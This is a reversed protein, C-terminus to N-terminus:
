NKILRIVKNNNESKINLYYIGISANSIDISKESVDLSSEYIIRGSGDTIVIVGDILSPNKLTFIGNSPNPAISFLVEDKEDLSIIGVEVCNGIGFCTMTANLIVYTYFGNATPTFTTGMVGAIPQQTACDVWLGMGASGGTAILTGNSETVVAAEPTTDEGIGYWECLDEDFVAEEYCALDTPVEPMEGIVSWECNVEDFVAEEYCALDTPESSIVYWECLDADFVAQEYCALDTPESSIVSWECNVEDFVAQEYCALDTPESSIVFWECLDADFVAEEYCALDTPESSIVYWECLDADFVAQEYCALDTPESSIVYWVCLDADFVAEEYCALDTPEEPMEGIVSWECLDEDFVAEEYCALDTPESSIVYWECFNEDFVAEEYCALDTPELPMEGFVYWVCLDVDFVAVEYCATIPEVPMEGIVYWECFDEDFVAEEYCALDTPELPMEGIVEWLLTEENFEATEYCALGTPEDTPVLIALDDVAWFFAWIDNDNYTFRIKVQSQNGAISSIDALWVESNESQINFDQDTTISFETWTQGNDGSVEVSRTEYYASFFHEFYLFVIPEDSFDLSYNTTATTIIPTGDNNETNNADSSVFLFGDAVSTSAFLISPVPYVEPNITFEWGLGTTGATNDIVWMNPNDFSDYHIAELDAQAVFKNQSQAM